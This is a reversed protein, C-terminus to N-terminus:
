VGIFINFFLLLFFFLLFYFFFSLCVTSCNHRTIVVHTYEYIGVYLLPLRQSYWYSIKKSECQVIGYQKVRDCHVHVPHGVNFVEKGWHMSFLAGALYDNQILVLTHGLGNIPFVTTARPFPLSPFLTFPTLVDETKWVQALIQM